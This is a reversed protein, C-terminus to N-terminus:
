LDSFAGKKHVVTFRRTGDGTKSLEVVKIIDDTMSASWGRKSAGAGAHGTGGIATGCSRRELAFSYTEM